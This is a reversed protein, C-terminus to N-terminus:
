KCPGPFYLQKKLTDISILVFIFLARSIDLATEENHVVCCEHYLKGWIVTIRQISESYLNHALYEVSVQSQTHITHLHSEPYVHSCKLIINMHTCAHACPCMHTYVHTTCTHSRTHTCICTHSDIACMWLHTDVHTYTCACTHALTLCWM